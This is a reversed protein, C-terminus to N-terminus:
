CAYGQNRFLGPVEEQCKRVTHGLGESFCRNLNYKQKHTVFTVEWTINRPPKGVMNTESNFKPESSSNLPLSIAKKYIGSATAASLKNTFINTDGSTSNLLTFRDLKYNEVASTYSKGDLEHM